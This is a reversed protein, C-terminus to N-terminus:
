EYIHELDYTVIAQTGFENDIKINSVLFKGMPDVVVIASAEAPSRVMPPEFQLYGMGASDSNLPASVQKLEGSIEIWDGPLLLGATSAPLGKVHLANGTQPTPAFASAGTQVLRAPASSPSFTARWVNIANASLTGTYSATNDASAAGIISTISTAANTKRSVLSIRYFGGGLDTVFTRTSAWNAGTTVTGFSGTSANFYAVVFTSSTNEVMEIFCWSRTGALVVYSLCFDTPATSFTVASHTVFHGSNAGNEIIRSATATGDPATAGFTPTGGTPTWAAQTVDDSHILANEGNDVLAVRSLSAYNCYFYDGAVLGTVPSYGGIVAFANAVSYPVGTGSFLASSAYATTPIFESAGATIGLRVNGSVGATRGNIVMARLTYPAYQVLTTISASNQFGSSGPQNMQVRLMRDAVSLTSAGTYGAWGTTGSAFTNNSFVESAAFSGRLQFHVKTRMAIYRGRTAKLISLLQAKEELRVTHRRSLKLRLGGFSQRQALGPAFAASFVSSGEDLWEHSEEEPIIWPPLLVEAM